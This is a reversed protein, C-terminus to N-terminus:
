LGRLQKWMESPSPRDECAEAIETVTKKHNEPVAYHFYAFTSDFDDDYDRLFGPLKRLDANSPAQCDPADYTERNGGGTRTYIVIEGNQVFADRFRPVSRYDTGLIGLLLPTYPNVGFMTNYLSM